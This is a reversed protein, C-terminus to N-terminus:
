IENPKHAVQVHKIKTYIIIKILLLLNDLSIKSSTHLEGSGGVLHLYGWAPLLCEDMFDVWLEAARALASHCREKLRM